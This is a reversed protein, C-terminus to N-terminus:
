KETGGGPSTSSESAISMRPCSSPGSLGSGVSFPLIPCSSNHCNHTIMPPQEARTVQPQAQRISCITPDGPRTSSWQQAPSIRVQLREGGLFPKPSHHPKHFGASSAEPFAAPQSPLPRPTESTRLLSEWRPRTLYSCVVM